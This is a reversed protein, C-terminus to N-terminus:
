AYVPGEHGVLTLRSKGTALDWLKLTSDDSGSLASRGDPTIAVAGVWDQHGAFTRVLAPSERSATWRMRFHPRGLATLAQDASTQLPSIGLLHARNRVQQAFLIPRLGHDGVRLNHAERQFLHLIAQLRCSIDSASAPCLELITILDEQLGDLGRRLDLAEL